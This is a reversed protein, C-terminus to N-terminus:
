KRKSREETVRMRRLTKDDGATEVGVAPRQGTNREWLMFLQFLKRLTHVNNLDSSRHGASSTTSIRPWLKLINSLHTSQPM